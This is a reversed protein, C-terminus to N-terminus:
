PQNSSNTSLQQTTSLPWVAAVDELCLLKSVADDGKLLRAICLAIAGQQLCLAYGLYEGSEQRGRCLNKM